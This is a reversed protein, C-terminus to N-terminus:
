FYLVSVLGGGGVPTIIAQLPIPNGQERLLDNVQEILELATTGQGAIIDSTHFYNDNNLWNIIIIIIIFPIM